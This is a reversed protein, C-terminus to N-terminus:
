KPNDTYIPKPKGNPCLNFHRFACDEYESAIQPCKNMNLIGNEIWFEITYLSKNYASAKTTIVKFGDETVEGDFKIKENNFEMYSFTDENITFFFKDENCGGGESTWYGIFKQPMKKQSFVNHATMLLLVSTIMLKTKM